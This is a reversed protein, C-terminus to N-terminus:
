RHRQVEAAVGRQEDELVPRQEDPQGKERRAQEHQARGGGREEDEACQAGVVAGGRKKKPTTRGWASSFSTNVTHAVARPTATAATTNRSSSPVCLGTLRTPHAPATAAM